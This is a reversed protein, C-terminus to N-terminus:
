KAENASELSVLRGSGLQVTYRYHVSPRWLETLMMGTLSGVIPHYTRNNTFGGSAFDVRAIVRAIPDTEANPAPASACGVLLSALLFPLSAIPRM